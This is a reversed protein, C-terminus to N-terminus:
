WRRKSWDEEAERKVEPAAPNKVKIWDSCKTPGPWYKSGLRKSVIGECGLTCAHAFVVDGPKDTHDCLHLGAGANRIVSMLMAKLIEIAKNRLLHGDLEILDFAFLHM